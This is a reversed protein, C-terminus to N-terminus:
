DDVVTADPGLDDGFLDLGDKGLLLLLHVECDLYEFYREAQGLDLYVIFGIGLVAAVVVSQGQGQAEVLEAFHTGELGVGRRLFHLVHTRIAELEVALYYLQLLDAVGERSERHHRGALLSLVEQESRVAPVELGLEVDQHVEVLLAAPDLAQQLSPGDLGHVEHDARQLM